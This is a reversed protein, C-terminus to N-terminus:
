RLCQKITENAEGLADVYAQLAPLLARRKDELALLAAREAGSMDYAVSGFGLDEQSRAFGGVAKFANDLPQSLIECLQQRSQATAPGTLAVLCVSVALPVRIM